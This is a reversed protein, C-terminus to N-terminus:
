AVGESSALVPGLNSPVDSEAGRGRRCGNGEDVKPERKSVERELQSLPKAPFSTRNTARTRHAAMRARPKLALRCAPRAMTGGFRSVLAARLRLIVDRGVTM